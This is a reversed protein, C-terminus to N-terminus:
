LRVRDPLELEDSRAEALVTDETLLKSEALGYSM